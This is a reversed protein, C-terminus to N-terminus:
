GTTREGAPQCALFLRWLLSRILLFRRRGRCVCVCAAIFGILNIADRPFWGFFRRSDPQAGVVGTMRTPPRLGARPAESKERRLTRFRRSHPCSHESS